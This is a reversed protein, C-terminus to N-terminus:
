SIKNLNLFVKQLFPFYFSNGFFKYFDTFRYIKIYYLYENLIGFILELSLKIIKFEHKNTEIIENIKFMLNEDIPTM